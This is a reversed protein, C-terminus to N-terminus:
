KFVDAQIGATILSSGAGLFGGILQADAQDRLIDVRNGAGFQIGLATLRENRAKTAADLRIEDVAQKRAFRVTLAAEEAEAAEDGIIELASVDGLGIGAGAMRAITGARRRDRDRRVRREEEKGAAKVMEVNRKGLDEFFNANALAVAAEFQANEKVAKAQARSARSAGIGGFISSAAGLLGSVLFGAGLTSM